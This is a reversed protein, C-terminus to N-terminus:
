AYIVERAGDLEVYQSGNLLTCLSEESARFHSSLRNYFTEDFAFNVSMNYSYCIGCLCPSCSTQTNGQRNSMRRRNHHIKGLHRAWQMKRFLRQM